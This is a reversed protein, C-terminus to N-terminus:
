DTNFHMIPDAYIAESYEIFKIISYMTQNDPAYQKNSNYTVIIVARQNQDYGVAECLDAEAHLELNQRGNSITGFCGGDGEFFWWGMAGTLEVEDDTSIPLVPFLDYESIFKPNVEYMESDDSSCAILTLVFFLLTLTKM